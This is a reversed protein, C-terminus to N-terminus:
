RVADQQLRKCYRFAWYFSVKVKFDNGSPTVEAEFLQVNDFITLM